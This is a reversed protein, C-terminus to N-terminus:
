PRTIIARLRKISEYVLTGLDYELLAGFLVVCFITLFLFPWRCKHLVAPASNPRAVRLYFYYFGLIFTPICLPWLVDFFDLDVFLTVLAFFIAVFIGFLATARESRLQLQDNVLRTMITDNEKQILEQYDNLIHPLHNSLMRDYFADRAQPEGRSDTVLNRCTELESQLRPFGVVCQEIVDRGYRPLLNRKVDRDIHILVGDVIDYKAMALYHKTLTIADELQALQATTPTEAAAIELCIAMQRGAYRLSFVAPSLAEGVLLEYRKLQKELDFWEQNLDEFRRRVEPPM